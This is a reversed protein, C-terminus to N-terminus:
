ARTRRRLRLLALAGAIALGDAGGSACGGRGPLTPGDQEDEGGPADDDGDGPVTPTPEEDSGDDGDDDGGPGGDGPGQGPDDPPAGPDQGGDPVPEALVRVRLSAGRKGEVGAELLGEGGRAIRRLELHASGSAFDGPVALAAGDLTAWASSVKAADICVLIPLDAGDGGAFAVAGTTVAGTGRTLTLEALVLAGPSDCRIGSAGDDAVPLPLTYLGVDLGGSTRESFAVRVADDDAALDGLLQEGAYPRPAHVLGSRWAWLVVQSRGSSLDEFAVWEGSLRPRRQEGPLPLAALLQGAGDYVEVDTSTDAVARTVAVRLAGPGGDIAVGTAGGPSVVRAEGRALDLLRVAGGAAADVYAVTTGSVAPARQDGPAAVVGSRPAGSGFLFWGLDRAGDRGVEWVAASTSVAPARAGPEAPPRLLTGTALYAVTIGADTRYAVVSRALDPSDEDDPGAAVVRTEGTALDRALVDLSGRTGDAYLVYRGDIAPDTQDGPGSAIWTFTGIPTARAVYPAVLALALAAM